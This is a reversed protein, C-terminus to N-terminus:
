YLHQRDVLNIPQGAATCAPCIDPAANAPPGCSPVLTVAVSDFPVGNSCAISGAPPIHAGLAQWGWEVRCAPPNHSEIYAYRTCDDTYNQASADVGLMCQVAALTVAFVIIKRM